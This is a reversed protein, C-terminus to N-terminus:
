PSVVIIIGAPIFILLCFLIFLWMVAYSKRRAADEFYADLRSGVIRYLVMAILPIVLIQVWYDVQPVSNFVFVQAITSLFFAASGVLMMGFTRNETFPM